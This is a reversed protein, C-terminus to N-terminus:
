FLFVACCDYYSHQATLFQTLKNSKRTFFQELFSVSLLVATSCSISFRWQFIWEGPRFGLALPKWMRSCCLQSWAWLRACSAAFASPYWIHLLSLDTRPSWLQLHWRQPWSALSSFSLFLLLRPWLLFNMCPPLFTEGTVGGMNLAVNYVIMGYVMITAMIATFVVDQFKNKPM